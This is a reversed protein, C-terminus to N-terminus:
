EGVAGDIRERLLDAHGVHRAYEEIMHVLVWRLSVVGLGPHAVASALDLDPAQAVFRDTFAMEDRWAAVAEAVQEPDAAAGDFDADEDAGFLPAVDLGAMLERFWSREVEAAHRVLGLLSLGSPEVARRALQEADLGACKIRLTDRQWRLFGTLTEREAGLPAPDIRPEATSDALPTTM